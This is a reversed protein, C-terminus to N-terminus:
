FLCNIVRSDQSKEVVCEGASKGREWKIRKKEECEQKAEEKHKQVREKHHVEGGM